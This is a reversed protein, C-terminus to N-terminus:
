KNLPRSSEIFNFNTIVNDTPKIETTSSTALPIVMYVTFTDDKIGRLGNDTCPLVAGVLDKPNGAYWLDFFNFDDVGEKATNHDKSVARYPKLENNYM